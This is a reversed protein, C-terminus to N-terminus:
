KIGLKEKKDMLRKEYKSPLRWALYEVDDLSKKFEARSDIQILKEFQVTLKLYSILLWLGAVFVVLGIILTWDAWNGLGTNHMTIELASVITVIAGALLAGAAIELAREVQFPKPM